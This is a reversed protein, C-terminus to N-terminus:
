LLRASLKKAARGGTLGAGAAAGGAMGYGVSGLAEKIKGATGSEPLAAKIASVVPKTHHYADKVRSLISGLSSLFGGGVIRRLDTHGPTPAIEAGIVDAETLLGKVIQSSGGASVFLGSNVTVVYLVPTVAAASTNKVTVTYQLSYQGMTGPAQGPSLAFDKGPRIALMGGVLAVNSGSSAVKGEGSWANYDMELGNSYSLSYLVPASMSSMLGAKNDFALSIQTIPLHWDGQTADYSSPRAYILLMDPITNLTITQSQVPASQGAPIPTNYATLFRPFEMYPVVSKAPLPLDLSPSLFTVDMRANAFPYGPVSTNFGIGAVTRGGQPAVRLVRAPSGVNAVVQIASIGFLGTDHEEMDSFVFPSLCLKETTRFRFYITFPTAAALAACIPVGNADTGYGPAAPVPLNAALVSGASDTFQVDYFAGNPVEGSDGANSYGGLPNNLAGACDTYNQYRDLMSPCSRQMRNQKYDTLRLIEPLVDQVNLTVTQNNITASLTSMMSTLPFACLAGDTGFRFIQTNAATGAPLTVTCQMFVDSTWQIARDVFVQQSPVIISYSHQSANAAIAAFPATTVSMSGKQVAYKPEAQYIRDDFVALKQVDAM